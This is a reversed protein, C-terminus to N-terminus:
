FVLEHYKTCCTVPFINMRWRQKKRMLFYEHLSQSFFYSKVDNYKNPKSVICMWMRKFVTCKACYYHKRHILVLSHCSIWIVDMLFFFFVQVFLDECYFFGVGGGSFQICKINLWSNQVYNLFLYSKIRKQLSNNKVRHLFIHKVKKLLTFESPFCAVTSEKYDNDIM